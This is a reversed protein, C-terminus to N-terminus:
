GIVLNVNILTAGTYVTSASILKVRVRDGFMGDKITDDTISGDTTVIAAALAIGQKVSSVKKATSTTFAHCM